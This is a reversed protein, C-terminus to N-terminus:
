RTCRTAWSTRSRIASSAHTGMKMHGIVPEIASRQHSLTELTRTIDRKHHLRLILGAELEM